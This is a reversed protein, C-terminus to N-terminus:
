EREWGESIVKGAEDMRVQFTFARAGDDRLHAFRLDLMEVVAV